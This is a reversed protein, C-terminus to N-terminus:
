NVLNFTTPFHDPVFILKNNNIMMTALEKDTYGDIVVDLFQSNYEFYPGGVSKDTNIETYDENFQMGTMVYKLILQEGPQNQYTMKSFYTRPSNIDEVIKINSLVYQDVQNSKVLILDYYQGDDSFKYQYKDGTPAVIEYLKNSLVKNKDILLNNTKLDNVLLKNYYSKDSYSSSLIISSSM